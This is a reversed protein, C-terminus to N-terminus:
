ESLVRMQEKSERKRLIQMNKESVSAALVSATPFRHTILKGWSVKDCVVIIDVSTAVPVLQYQVSQFSIM